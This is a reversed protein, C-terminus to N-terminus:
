VLADLQESFYCDERMVDPRFDDGVLAICGQHLTLRDDEMPPAVSPNSNVFM